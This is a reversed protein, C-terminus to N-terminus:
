NYGTGKCKRCIMGFIPNEKGTGDCVRCKKLPKNVLNIGIGECIPCVIGFVPNEKGSGKCFVCSVPELDDSLMVENEGDGNCIRCITGFVPNEKGTEDCFPCPFFISHTPYNNEQNPNNSRKKGDLSGPFKPTIAPSSYGPFQPPHSPKLRNQTLSQILTQEAEAETLGVIDIYSIAAFLGDPKYDRVRVPVLRKKEGTPDTFLTAAWEPQTMLSNSYDQSLVAITRKTEKIARHM